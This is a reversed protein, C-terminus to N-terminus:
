VGARMRGQDRAVRRLLVVYGGAAITTFIFWQVAYSLHPGEDPAPPPLAVLAPAGAAAAPERPESRELQVYASLIPYELQAAYRRLDVRALVDLRGRSPDTPGFSGRSQSPFVLGEVTVPGSPPRPAVLAGDRDFGIFGRNVVVATGDDLRLPTLVWGGPTANFTRNPVIVTDASAYTGTAQVSRYLASDVAAADPSTMAPVVAEVAAVPEEQRAKVLANYTRREDLRRLQWFALLVMSVVLSVVLVHRVLWKPTLAFRWSM